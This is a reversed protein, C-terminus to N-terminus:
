RGRRIEGVARRRLDSEAFLAEILEVVAEGEFELSLEGESWMYRIDALSSELIEGLYQFKLWPPCYIFTMDTAGESAVFLSKLSSIKDCLLRLQKSDSEAIDALEEVELTIKGIVSSLLSGLSQLLASPALVPKWLAHVEYMRDVVQQVASECEAKNPQVTCDAFGQAGDLLDRLITRQADLEATYARKAFTELANTDAELRLRSSPPTNAQWALLSASLCTADNYILMNGVPIKAYATPATARYIALALTPLTYLGQAAPAIPSETYEPGFLTQADKIVVQIQSLLTAPVATTTYSERLTVERQQPQSPAIGNTQAPTTRTAVPSPHKNADEGDGWGWAEEGTEDAKDDLDDTDWASAEDDEIPAQNPAAASAPAVATREPSGASPEEWASDWDDDGGNGSAALADDRGVMETEVREVVKREQSGSFVLNRVDGLLAERRKTLWARPAGEVWQRLQDAGHWQLSDIFDAFSLLETLTVEFEDIRSMDLPVAPELWHEEFRSILVPMFTASYQIGSQHPLRSRLHSLLAKVGSLISATNNVQSDATCELADPMTGSVTIKGLKGDRGKSLLPRLMTRDIATTLRKAYQEALGLREAADLVGGLTVDPQNGLSKRVTFRSRDGESPEAVVLQGWNESVREVLDERAGKVREQLVGFARTGEFGTGGLDEVGTEVTELDEVAEGLRGALVHERVVGVGQNVEGFGRLGEGLRESFGVEGELLRVKRGREEAEGKLEKVREAEKVIERATERSRLIDAQLDRARTIWTDIDPAANRSLQRISTKLTEQEARLSSIISPLTDSTLDASSLSPSSPYAGSQLHTLIAPALASNDVDAM